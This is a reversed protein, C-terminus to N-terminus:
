GAFSYFQQTPRLQVVGDGRAGIGRYRTREVARIPQPGFTQNSTPAPIEPCPRPAGNCPRM